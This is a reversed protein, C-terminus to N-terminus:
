KLDDGKHTTNEIDETSCDRCNNCILGNQGCKIDTLGVEIDKACCKDSSYKEVLKDIENNVWRNISKGSTFISDDTDQMRLKKKLEEAFKKIM